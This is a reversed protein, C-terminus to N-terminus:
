EDEVEVCTFAYVDGDIPGVGDTDLESGKTEDYGDPCGSVTAHSYADCNIDGGGGGDYDTATNSEFAIGILTVVSMEVFIAGGKMASNSRLISTSMELTGGSGIFIGGGISNSFAAECHEIVSDRVVVASSVIQM